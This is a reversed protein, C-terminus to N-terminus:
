DDTWMLELEPSPRDKVRVHLRYRGRSVVSTLREGELDAAAGGSDLQVRLRHEGEPLRVRWEADTERPDLRARLLRRQGSRITLLGERRGHVVHVTVVAADADAEGPARHDPEITRLDALRPPEARASRRAPFGVVLYSGLLIAGVAMISAIAVAAGGGPASRRAAFRSDRRAGRPGANGKDAAAERAPEVHTTEERETVVAHRLPLGAAAERLDEALDHGSQYRRQPEKALAKMVAAESEPSIRPVSRRLPAPDSHCIAYALSTLDEGMFPRRGCLLTYLVAGLSFLDSRGDVAMGRIQEPSAFAPSGVFLGVRTLDSESLRAIGFDAIRARGEKDVLINAPKVDRHVIGRRHAAELAEAVQAGWELATRERPRPGREIITELSLGEVLEMVIFPRGDEAVGVDHITVIGPHTLMGAARAERLFRQEWEAKQRGDLGKPTNLIKVAVLRNIHPDVARWVEGFAGRGIPDQPLYRGV